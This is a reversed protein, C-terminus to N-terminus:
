KILKWVFRVALKVSNAASIEPKTDSVATSERGSTFTDLSVFICLKIRNIKVDNITRSTILTPTM